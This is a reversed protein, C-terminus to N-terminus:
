LTRFRETRCEADVILACRIPFFGRHFEGAANADIVHNFDAAYAAARGFEIVGQDKRAAGVHLANGDTGVWINSAIFRATSALPRLGTM